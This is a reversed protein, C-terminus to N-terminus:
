IALYRYTQEVVEKKAMNKMGLEDMLVDLEYEVRDLIDKDMNISELVLCPYDMGRSYQRLKWLHQVRAQKELRINIKEVADLQALMAKATERENELNEQITRKISPDM